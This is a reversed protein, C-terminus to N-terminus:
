KRVYIDRLNRGIGDYDLGYGVLFDNPVEFGVYNIEFNHEFAARKFLLTAILIRAPGLGNLDPLFSHLTNGTDIIDEVIVVTRGAIDRDLGLMNRVRGTSNMGSYSALKVFTIESEIPIERMLDAAFMFAGNLIGIFLPRDHRLDHSLQRGMEAIRQRIAGAQILPTFPLDHVRVM